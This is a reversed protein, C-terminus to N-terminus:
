SLTLYKLNIKNYEEYHMTVSVMRGYAFKNVYEIKPTHSFPNLTLRSVNYNTAQYLGEVSPIGDYVIINTNRNFYRKITAHSNIIKLWVVLLM